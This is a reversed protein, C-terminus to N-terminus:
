VVLQSSSLKRLGTASIDFYYEWAKEYVGQNVGSGGKSQFVQTMWFLAISCNLIGLLALRDDENASASLKIVPASQKFVRGGRDLAFRNSSSVAAFVISFPVRFRNRFFM